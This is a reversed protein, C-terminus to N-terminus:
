GLEPEAPPRAGQPLVSSEIKQRLDDAIQRYRPDPM